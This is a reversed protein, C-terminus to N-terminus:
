ERAGGELYLYGECDPCYDDYELLATTSGYPVRDFTSVFGNHCKHCKHGHELRAEYEELEELEELHSIDEGRPVELRKVIEIERQIAIAKYQGIPMKDNRFIAFTGEKQVQAVEKGEFFYGKKLGGAKIVFRKSVIM